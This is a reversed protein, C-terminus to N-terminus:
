LHGLQDYKKIISDVTSQNVNLVAAIEKNSLKKAHLFLINPTQEPPAMVVLVVLKKKVGFFHHPINKAVYIVDGKQVSYQHSGVQLSAVGDIISYIEDSTHPQQPDTGHKNIVDIGSSLSNTRIYEYYERNTKSFQQHQLKLLNPLTYLQKQIDHQKVPWDSAIAISFFAASLLLLVLYRSINRM